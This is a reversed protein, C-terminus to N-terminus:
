DKDEESDNMEKIMGVRMLVELTVFDIAFNKGLDGLSVPYVTIEVEQDLLEKWEDNFAQEDQMKWTPMNTVPNPEGKIKKDDNDREAHKEILREREDDLSDAIKKVEGYSLSLRQSYKSKIKRETDMNNIQGRADLSDINTIKVTEPNQM